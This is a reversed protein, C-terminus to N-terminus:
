SGAALTKSIVASHETIAARIRLALRLTELGDRGGVRPRSRHRVCQLFSRLQRKLPEGQATALPRLLPRNRDDLGIRVGTRGVYDVSLYERPQFFRLKRVRETSVRSATLNAVCGNEFQIRANAIDARDSVVSLGSADVQKVESDVLSRVVDLDHIMLDLVVDVDLSRPSFPSMRHVEFFLPLTAVNAAAEVAPNFRELHGVQLVRGGLEAAEVLAEAGAVDEAIPKEVLLDIGAELLPVGVPAHQLTPVALSLARVQPPLDAVATHGACGFKAAIQRARAPDRDVVAVLEAEPLSAYVRAHHHGFSGCGVVAVPIPQDKTESM